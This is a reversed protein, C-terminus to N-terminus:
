PIREVRIQVIHDKLVGPRGFTWGSGQDLSAVIPFSEEFDPDTRQATPKDLFDLDPVRVAAFGNKAKFCHGKVLQVCRWPARQWDGVASTKFIVRVGLPGAVLVSGLRDPLDGQRGSPFIQVAHHQGSLNHKEYAVIDVRMNEAIDWDM